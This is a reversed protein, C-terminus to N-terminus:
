RSLTKGMTVGANRSRLVSTGSNSVNKALFHADKPLCGMVKLGSKKVASCFYGHGPLTRSSELKTSRKLVRYAPWSNSKRAMGGVRKGLPKIEACASNCAWDGKSALNSIVGGGSTKASLPICFWGSGSSLSISLM